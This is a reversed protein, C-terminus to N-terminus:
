REASPQASLASGRRTATPRPKYIAGVIMGFISFEVIFDIVWALFLQTSAPWSLYYWVAAFSCLMLGVLVGFRLGEQIGNGGEYGKAYAYSFAFFGVLSLGFAFPMLRIAQDQPRMVAAHQHYLDALLVTNVLFGLAVFAVWAAFAAVALRPFNM